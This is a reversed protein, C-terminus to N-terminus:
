VKTKSDRHSFFDVLKAVAKEIDSDSITLSLRLHFPMGFAEGPVLALGQAILIEECVAASNMSSDCLKIWIYFAGESRYVSLSKLNALKKQVFAHRETMKEKLETVYHDCETLAVDAAKQIFDPISTLTQGCFDNLKQIVEVPGAVWGMRWGTMAYSKSVGHVIFIRKKFDEDVFDLFSAAREATGHVLQNYIDDCIVAVNPYNKLVQYLEQLETKSYVAGSPNNPSNLILLRTKQTLVKKLTLGNLKYNEDPMAIVPVAGAMKAQTIYSVWYPAPIIVEDETDCLIQMLAYLGFKSGPTVIIEEPSYNTGYVKLFWQSIVKRTSLLGQSSSYRAAHNEIYQVLAQTIKPEVNEQPEGVTGIVIDQGKSKLDQAKLTAKMTSSGALAQAFRSFKM